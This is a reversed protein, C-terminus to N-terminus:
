SITQRKRCLRPETNRQTEVAANQHHCSNCASKAPLPAAKDADDFAFYAWKQPYRAEDKVAAELRLADGQYHGGNNISGKEVSRRIELLFMTKDPWRPPQQPNM